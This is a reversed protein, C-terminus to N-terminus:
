PSQAWALSNTPEESAYTAVVLNVQYQIGAQHMANQFGIESKARRYFVAYGGLMMAMLIMIIGIVALMEVLTFATKRGSRPGDM